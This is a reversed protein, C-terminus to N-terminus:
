ERGSRERSLFLNNQRESAVRAREARVLSPPRGLARRSGGSAGSARSSSTTRASAREERGSRERSLLLGSRASAQEGRGSRERLFSRPRRAARARNRRESAREGRGAGGGREAPVYSSFKKRESRERPRSVQMEAEKEAKEKREQEERMQAGVDKASKSMGGFMGNRESRATALGFVNTGRKVLSGIKQGVMSKSARRQRAKEEQIM